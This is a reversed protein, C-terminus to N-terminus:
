QTVLEGSARHRCPRGYKTASSPLSTMSYQQRFRAITKELRVQPRKIPLQGLVSGASLFGLAGALLLSRDAAPGILPNERM